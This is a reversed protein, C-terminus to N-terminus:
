FYACRQSFIGHGMDQGSVRVDVGERMLSGLAPGEATAWDLGKGNELVALRNKVSILDRLSPSARMGSSGCCTPRSVRRPLTHQARPHVLGSWQQQLHSIISVPVHSPAFTLASALHDKYTTRVADVTEKSIVHEDQPLSFDSLHHIFSSPLRVVLREEYLAPVSRRSRIKEYMLLQTFAPEDM